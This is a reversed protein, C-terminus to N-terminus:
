LLFQNIQAWEAILRELSFTANAPSTSPLMICDKTTQPYIHKDYLKKATTGNAYIMTGLILIRSDRNYIPEFPHYVREM